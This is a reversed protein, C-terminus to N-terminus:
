KRYVSVSTHLANYLPPFKHPFSKLSRCVCSILIENSHHHFFFCKSGNVIRIVGNSVSPKSKIYGIVSRVGRSMLFIFIRLGNRHVNNVSSWCCAPPRQLSVRKSLWKDYVFSRCCREVHRKACILDWLSARGHLTFQSTTVTCFWSRQEEFFVSGSSEDARERRCPTPPTWLNVGRLHHRWGMVAIINTQNFRERKVRYKCSM